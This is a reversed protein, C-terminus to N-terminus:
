DARGLKRLRDREVKFAAKMGQLFAPAPLIQNTRNYLKTAVSILGHDEELSNCTKYM